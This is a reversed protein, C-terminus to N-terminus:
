QNFMMILIILKIKYCKTLCGVSEGEKTFHDSRRKPGPWRSALMNGVHQRRTPGVHCNLLILCIMDHLQRNVKLNKVTNIMNQANFTVCANVKERLNWELLIKEIEQSLNQATHPGELKACDLVGSSLCGQNKNWFHVTIALFGEVNISTWGDTTIAVSQAKKVEKQLTNQTENFLKPLMKNRITPRSPPVYKKDLTSCFEKFSKSDVISFPLLDKAILRVLALDCEKKKQSELSYTEKQGLGRLLAEKISTQVLSINQKAKLEEPHQNNAHRIL